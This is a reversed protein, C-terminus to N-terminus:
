ENNAELLKQDNNLYMPANLGSCRFDINEPDPINKYSKIFDNKHFSIDSKDADRLWQMGGFSNLTKGARASIPKSGASKVSSLVEQWEIEAKKDDSLKAGELFVSYDLGGYAKESELKEFGKKLDLGKKYDETIKDIWIKFHVQDLQIGKLVSIQTLRTIILEKLVNEQM